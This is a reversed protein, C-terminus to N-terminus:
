KIHRVDVIQGRWETAEALEVPVGTEPAQILYLHRGDAKDVYGAVMGVHGPAAATGDSGPIFV